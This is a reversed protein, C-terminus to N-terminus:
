QGGGRALRMVKRLKELADTRVFSLPVEPSGGPPYLSMGSATSDAMLEDCAALLDAGYSEVRRHGARVQQALNRRDIEALAEQETNYFKHYRSVKTTREGNAGIYYHDTQRVFECREPKSSVAHLRFRIIKNM